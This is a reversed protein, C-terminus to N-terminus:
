THIYIKNGVKKVSIEQGDLYVVSVPEMPFIAGLNRAITQVTNTVTVEMFMM